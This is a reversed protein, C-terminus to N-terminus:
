VKALYTKAAALFSEAWMLVEQFQAPSVEESIGYDGENRIDQADLLWRQFRNVEEQNSDRVFIM